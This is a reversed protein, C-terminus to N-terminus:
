KDKLDSVTDVDRLVGPDDCDLRCFETGAAQLMDRAGEDGGLGSLLPYYDRGFGVPHGRAGRFCPAVLREGRELAAAVAEITAARIWPMDGLAVIWGIADAAARVGCALSAGMGEGAYECEVVRAGERRLLDALATAGPRVVALTEAVAVLNACAAQGITRGDPLAALLKDAGFRTSAGACLLLGVLGSM